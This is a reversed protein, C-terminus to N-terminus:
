FRMPVSAEPLRIGPTLKITDCTREYANFAALLFDFSQRRQLTDGARDAGTVSLNKVPERPVARCLAVYNFNSRVLALACDRQTPACGAILIPALNM